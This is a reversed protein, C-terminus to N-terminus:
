PGSAVEEAEVLHGSGGGWGVAPQGAVVRSAEDPQKLAAFDDRQGLCSCCNPSRRSADQGVPFGLPPYSPHGPKIRAVGGRVTQSLSRGRTRLLYCHRTFRGRGKRLAQPQDLQDLVLQPGAVPDNCLENTKPAFLELSGVAHAHVVVRATKGTGIRWVHRHCKHLNVRVLPRAQSKGDRDALLAAALTDLLQLLSHAREDAFEAKRVSWHAKALSHRSYCPVAGRCWKSQLKHRPTKTSFDPNLGILLFAPFIMSNSASRNGCANKM